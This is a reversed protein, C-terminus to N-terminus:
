RFNISILEFKINKVKKKLHIFNYQPLLFNEFNLLKPDNRTIGSYKHDNSTM